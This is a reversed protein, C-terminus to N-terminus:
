DKDNDPPPPAGERGEHGERGPRMEDFKTQQDPTLLARIKGRTDAVIDHIKDRRDKKSLSDDNFVAKIQDNQAQILPLIKAKQDDTLNLKESLRDLQHQPDM